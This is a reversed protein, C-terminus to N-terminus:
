YQMIQKTLLVKCTSDAISLWVGASNSFTFASHDSDKLLRVAKKAKAGQLGTHGWEIQDILNNKSAPRAISVAALGPNQEEVAYHCRSDAVAVASIFCFCSAAFFLTRM